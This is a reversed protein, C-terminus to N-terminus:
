EGIEHAESIACQYVGFDGKNNVTVLYMGIVKSLDKVADLWRLDIRQVYLDKQFGLVKYPEGDWFDQDQVFGDGDTFFPLPMQTLEMGDDTIHDVVPSPQLRITM